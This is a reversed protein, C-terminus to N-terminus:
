GNTHDLTGRGAKRGGGKKLATLDFQNETMKVQDPKCVQDWLHGTLLALFGRRITSTDLNKDFICLIHKDQKHSNLSWHCPLSFRENDGHHVDCKAILVSPLLTGLALLVATQDLLSRVPVPM